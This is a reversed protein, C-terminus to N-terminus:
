GQAGTPAGHGAVMADIREMSLASEVGDALRELAAEFREAARGAGPTAGLSALWAARFADNHFLGHLACGWVRGREDVAGRDVSGADFLPAGGETQGRHIEYGEIRAEAQHALWDPGGCLRARVQRTTKEAGFRTAMPLLSLGESTGVEGEHGEPDAIRRGLMQYGGCIGVVAAGDAARRLIADALGRQRLWALDARTHKTGPLVVADARELAELREVYRVRVDPEAELPAFDDFNAVRPLRVVAVEVRAEGSQAREDAVLEAADEEPVDTTDLQPIVGLVPVGGRAALLARGEDFLTPDGRFKNVLFGAVRRQDDEPLLWLTGLLQAFIGGRDIEGVLLVPAEAHRAAAMNAIDAGQLNLEAPSGAGELIVLEHAARLRDLAGTAEQWLRDVDRYYGRAPVRGEARGHVILQSRAEAEPKLLIPNMAGDPAKGAAAAQLAQARGIEAGEPTVAANNSMNQAKFPAVDVGRRAYIRCLAAALLSKGASSTCGQIMLTAASM